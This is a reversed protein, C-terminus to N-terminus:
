ADPLDDRHEPHVSQQYIDLCTACVPLPKPDRSPIWRHGCLAEVEFGEVRAQLVLAHPTTKATEPVHVIHAAPQNGSSLRAEVVESPRILTATSM